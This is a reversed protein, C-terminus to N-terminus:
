QCQPILESLRSRDVATLQEYSATGKVTRAVESLWKRDDTFDGETLPRGGSSFPLSDGGYRLILIASYPRGKSDRYFHLGAQGCRLRGSRVSYANSEILGSSPSTLDFKLRVFAAGPGAQWIEYSAVNGHSVVIRRFLGRGTLRYDGPILKVPEVPSGLSNTGSFAAGIMCTAFAVTVVVKKYVQSVTRISDNPNISRSPIV